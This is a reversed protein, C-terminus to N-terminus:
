KALQAIRQQANERYVGGHFCIVTEIAYQTLKKLSKYAEDIDFTMSPNPGLLQGDAAILADGTVL